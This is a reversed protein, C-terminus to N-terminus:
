EEDENVNKQNNVWNFLPVSPRYTSSQDNKNKEAQKEYKKQRFEKSQREVQEKTTINQKEWSLLIRDIYNFNYVQNLISERLAMYILEPSYEDEDLWMGITELEIPSLPRGFEEEFMQYLSQTSLSREKEQSRKEAQHWWASLKEWLLDFSLYEATKGNQDVSKVAIVKKKVLQNLEDYVHDTKLGMKEAINKVDPFTQSRQDHALLHILLLFQTHTM